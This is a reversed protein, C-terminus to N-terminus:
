VHARGIELDVGPMGVAEFMESLTADPHELLSEFSFSYDAYHQGFLHSTRWILYFLEYPHRNGGRLFPFQQQLDDVWVSLYFRDVFQDIPAQPGFAKLDVLTSCWQDRPHRFIHVLKARPFYQKLWGLRFDIRNFQLVPRCRASEILIEIFRQMDPDWSERDMFLHYRTWELRYHAQLSELGEYERWYDDVGLHSADVRGGRHSPDFWRRENFPEYYATTGPIGRFLNWLLTSGSRFRATIFIPDSRLNASSSPPQPLDAYPSPPLPGKLGRFDPTQSDRTAKAVLTRGRESSILTELFRFLAQKVPEFM